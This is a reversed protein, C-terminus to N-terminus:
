DWNPFCRHADDFAQERSAGHEIRMEIFRRVEPPAAKLIAGYGADLIFKSIEEDNKGQRRLIDAAKRCSHRFAKELQAVDEIAKDAGAKLDKIVDDKM